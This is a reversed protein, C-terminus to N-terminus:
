GRRLCAVAAADIATAAGRLQYQDRVLLGQVSRTEISMEIGTRLAALIEDDARADPAWADRGTGNLQFSRGDIRLLVASGPRKERSLRIHLQGGVRRQPWYGVSAFPRWAQAAPARLPATIAYCRGEGRFAGWTGFIGLSQQQAVAPAAGFLLFLLLASRRKVLACESPEHRAPM